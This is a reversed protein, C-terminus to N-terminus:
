VDAFKCVRLVDEVTTEPDDNFISVLACRDPYLASIAAELQPVYDDPALYHTAAHYHLCGFPGKRWNEATITEYLKM